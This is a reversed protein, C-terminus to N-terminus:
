PRRMLARAVRWWILGFIAIPPLLWPAQILEWGIQIAAALLVLGVLTLVFGLFIADIRDMGKSRLVPGMLLWRGM